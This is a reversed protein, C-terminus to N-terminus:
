KEWNENTSRHYGDVYGNLFFDQLEPQFIDANMEFSNGIGSTYLVQRQSNTQFLYSNYGKNYGMRYIYEQEPKLNMGVVNIKKLVVKKSNQNKLLSSCFFGLMFVLSCCIFPVTKKIM